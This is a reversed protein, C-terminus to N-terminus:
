KMQSTAFPRGKLDSIKEETPDTKSNISNLANKMKRVNKLETIEM